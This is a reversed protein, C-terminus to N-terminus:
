QVVYKTLLVDDIDRVIETKEFAMLISQKVEKQLHDLAQEGYLDAYTKNSFLKILTNRVLPMYNDIAEMRVPHRTEIALELMVFHNQQKEGKVSLVVKELQHFVPTPSIPDEKKTFVSIFSDSGNAGSSQKLYWIGGFVAGGSVIATTILMMVCLIIMQKKTM